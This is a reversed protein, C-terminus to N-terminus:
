ENDWKEWYLGIPGIELGRLRHGDSNLWRIGITWHDHWGWWWKSDREWTM